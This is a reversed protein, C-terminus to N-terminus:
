CVTLMKYFDCIKISHKIKDEASMAENFLNEERKIESRVFDIADKRVRHEEPFEVLTIADFVRGNKIIVTITRNSYALELMKNEGIFFGM